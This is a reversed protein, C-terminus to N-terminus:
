ANALGLVEGHTLVRCTGNDNVVYGRQANAYPMASAMDPIAQLGILSVGKRAVAKLTKKSFDRM